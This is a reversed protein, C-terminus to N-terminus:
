DENISEKFKVIWSAGKFTRFELPEFQKLYRLVRLIRQKQEISGRLLFQNMEEERSITIRWFALSNPEKSLLQKRQRKTKKKKM